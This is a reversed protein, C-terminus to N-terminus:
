SRAAADERLRKGLYVCGNTEGGTRVLEVFGLRGYFGLAPTNRVSV